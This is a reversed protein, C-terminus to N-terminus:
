RLLGLPLPNVLISPRLRLGYIQQVLHDTYLSAAAFIGGMLDVKGSELKAAKGGQTHVFDTVAQTPTLGGMKAGENSTDWFKSDTAANPSSGDAM